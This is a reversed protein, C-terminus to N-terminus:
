RTENADVRHNSPIREPWPGALRRQDSAPEAEREFGPLIAKFFANQLLRSVIEWTSTQPKDVKGSITAKTAVEDRPANKLLTVLGGILAEYIKRFFSKDRDQEPDYAHMEKFLPKVYGTIEGNRISLESYLSFRGDVVDFNGYARLLDNMSPMYTNEVRVSLDMEPGQKEPRFATTIATAGSGMFQGQIAVNAKGEAKQNTLNRVTMQTDALFVRYAPDRARNVFGFTSRVIKLQGIRLLIEPHNSVQRASQAVAKATQTEAAATQPMHVYDVHVGDIVADRLDVVKIRPAYEITGAASMRGRSVQMNYRDTVPKFYDLDLQQLRIDALLGVHPKALFDARGDVFLRGVDFVVADAHIDSPYVDEKSRINRINEAFIEVQRLHLPKFPGEDVYTIEGDRIRFTNIKLPYAAQLADQWGREKIPVKDKLEQRFQRLNIYVAPREMLFDAVLRLHLLAWWDVRAGLLSIHAVPPDPHANQSIVLDRLDLSFGLPHFNLARISVTYGTLRRNMDAEIRQRLPEDIMFALGYVLGVLVVVTGALLIWRRQSM